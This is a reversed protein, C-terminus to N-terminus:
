GLTSRVLKCRPWGYRLDTVFKESNECLVRYMKRDGIMKKASSIIKDLPQPRYQHDLHNNVRYLCGWAVNDLSDETVVAKHSLFTFMKSSGLKPFETPPALHIVYGDGVYIAWDKYGLHFIEILDGPKLEEYFMDEQGM